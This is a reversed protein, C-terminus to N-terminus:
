GMSARLHHTSVLREGRQRGVTRHRARNCTVSLGAEAVILQHVNTSNSSSCAEVSVQRELHLKKDWFPSPTTSRPYHSEVQGNADKDLTNMASEIAPCSELEVEDLVGDGNQDYQEMAAKAAANTELQRKEELGKGLDHLSQEEIYPLVSYGWGGPQGKGFGMDPHSM